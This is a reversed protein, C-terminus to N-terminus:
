GKRRSRAIGLLGLSLAVYTAPEPVPKLEHEFIKQADASNVAADEIFGNFFTRGHNGQVVAFDGSGFTGIGVGNNTASLGMSFNSSWGDDILRVPNSVGTFIGTGAHHIVTENFSGTYSAGFANAFSNDDTYWDTAIAKGGHAVWTEIANVADPYAAQPYQNLNLIVTDWGGLAVKSAFDSSSTATTLSYGAASVAPTWNDNGLLSDTWMLVGSAHAAGLSAFTAAFVVVIGSKM